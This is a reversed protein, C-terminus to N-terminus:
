RQSERWAAMGRFRSHDDYLDEEEEAVVPTDSDYDIRFETKAFLKWGYALNDPANLDDFQALLGESTQRLLAAKNTLDERSGIYTGKIM